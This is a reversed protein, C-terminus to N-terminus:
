QVPSSIATLLGSKNDISFVLVTGDSPSSFYLMDTEPGSNKGPSVPTTTVLSVPPVVISSVGTVGSGPFSAVPESSILSIGGNRADTDYILLRDQGSGVVASGATLVYVYQNMSTLTLSNAASPIVGPLGETAVQRLEGSSSDVEFSSLQGFGTTLSNGLVYMYDGLFRTAASVVSIQSSLTLPFNPLPALARTETDISFGAIQSASKADGTAGGFIYLFKGTHDVLAATPNQIQASITSVPTLAGTESDLRLIAIADADTPTPKSPNTMPLFAFGGTPAFVLADGGQISGPLQLPSQATLAGTASNVTFTLVTSGGYLYLFSATPDLTMGSLPFSNPVSIAPPSVPRLAGTAPDVSSTSVTITDGGALSTGTFVFQPRSSSQPTVAILSVNRAAPVVSGGSPSITATTNASNRGGSDDTVTLSITYTGPNSYTHTTTPSSLEASSNGDGFNWVYALSQGPPAASAAGNFTITQGVTGAYPGGANATPAPLVQVGVTTSDSAGANDTVTLEVTYNGAVTYTHSPSAGTSNATGDGFNWVYTLAQNPPATSSTGNFAIAQNANGFYPGGANAVPGGSSSVGTGGCSVALIVGAFACALLLFRSLPQAKRECIAQNM